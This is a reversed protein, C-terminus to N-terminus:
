PFVPISHISDFHYITIHQYIQGPKLIPSPFNSHNPSDPYNQAELCFGGRKGYKKGNKGTIGDVPLFNGAYFQVAPQNSYMSLVRGSNTDWVRAILPLDTSITSQAVPSKPYHSPAVIFNHDYGGGQKVENICEGIKRPKDYFNMVYDKDISLIKGTPVLKDDVETVERSNLWIFHNEISSEKIDGSLNFYSHNTLNIVTDQTEGKALHAEMEIAIQNQKKPVTYTVSVELNGPYGEEGDVSIYKMSVSMDNETENTGTITWIKQSFGKIGGHLHNGNNNQALQYTKGNLNFKGQSIRNAYRGVICGFYRNKTADQYDKWDSHGLVVDEINKNSADPAFIETITAGFNIIKVRFGNLNTMEISEVHHQEDLVARKMLIILKKLLFFSIKM